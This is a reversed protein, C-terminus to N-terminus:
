QAPSDVPMAPVARLLCFGNSILLAGDSDFVLEIPARCDFAASNSFLHRSIVAIRSASLKVRYIDSTNYECYFLDGATDPGYYDNPAFAIGTPAVAPPEPALDLLAPIPVGHVTDVVIDSSVCGERGPWEYNGGRIILNLEDHSFVGNETAFIQQSIPDFTFEFSNRLGLAWVPNDGGFPNDQPISGDDNYRLIKGRTGELSQAEVDFTLDGQSVYLKGDPGFHINGGYHSFRAPDAPFDALVVEPGVVEDGVVQLRSLRIGELDRGEEGGAPGSVVQGSASRTYYVYIFGNSAFSPDLALGLLGREGGV